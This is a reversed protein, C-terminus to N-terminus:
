LTSIIKGIEEPSWAKLTTTHVNGAIGVWFIFKQATEDDPFESAGVIDYKGMTYWLQMKGGMKEAQMRASEARKTTDKVNKRGEDTWQILHIYKPM